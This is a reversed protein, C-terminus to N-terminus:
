ALRVAGIKAGEAAAGLLKFAEAALRGGEQIGGRRAHREVRDALSLGDYTAQRATAQEQREVRRRKNGDRGRM